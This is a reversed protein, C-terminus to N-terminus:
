FQSDESQFIGLSDIWDPCGVVFGPGFSFTLPRLRHRKQWNPWCSPATYRYTVPTKETVLFPQRESVEHSLSRVDMMGM